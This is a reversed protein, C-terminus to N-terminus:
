PKWRYITKILRLNIFRVWDEPRNLLYSVRGYVPWITVLSMLTFQQKDQFKLLFLIYQVNNYMYVDISMNTQWCHFMTSSILTDKSYMLHWLDFCM